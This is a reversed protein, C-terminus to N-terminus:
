ILIDILERIEEITIGANKAKNIVIELDQQTRYLIEEKKVDSNVELVYSGKGHITAIFGEKELFDYAKKVTLASIKLDKALGRVSPLFDNKELAGNVISTKIQAVIQEYIPIMSNNKIIINM